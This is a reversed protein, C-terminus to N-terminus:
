RDTGDGFSHCMGRGPAEGFPLGRGPAEGFPVDLGRGPAAAGGPEGIEGGVHYQKTRHSLIVRQETADNTRKDVVLM